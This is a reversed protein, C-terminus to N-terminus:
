EADGGEAAKVANEVKEYNKTIWHQWAWEEDIPEYGAAIRIDNV